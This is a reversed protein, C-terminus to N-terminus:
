DVYKVVLGVEFMRRWPMYVDEILIHGIISDLATRTFLHLEEKVIESVVGRSERVDFYNMDFEPLRLDTVKKRVCSCYGVDEIYRLILFERHTADDGCYLYRVGQAIATGITNSSTNWGAYGALEFLLGKRNLMALLETEGGNAYANDGITVPINQKIYQEIAFVFEPLTRFVNYAEDEVPQLAAEQMNEGPASLALIFDADADSFCQM